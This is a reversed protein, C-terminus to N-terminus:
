DGSRGGELSGYLQRDMSRLSFWRIFFAMPLTWLMTALERAVAHTQRAMRGPVKM